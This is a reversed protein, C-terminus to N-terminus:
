EFLSQQPLFPLCIEYGSVKVLVELLVNLDSKYIFFPQPSLPLVDPAWVEFSLKVFLYLNQSLFKGFVVVRFLM